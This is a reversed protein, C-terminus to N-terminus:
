SLQEFPNTEGRGSPREANGEPLQFRTLLESLQDAIRNLHAAAELTKASGSTTADAAKAVSSIRGSINNTGDTVALLSSGVTATTMSQQGVASAITTTADRVADILGSIENIALVAGETDAQIAEVKSRIEDTAGSTQSALEKVENAVVAFGKGAAGVRAAEITANLALLNTQEAISTIVDVVDGIGAASADLEVMREKTAHTVDVAQDALAAAGATSTSIEQVSLSMQDMAESVQNSSDAIEEAAAAVETAQGAAENAVGSMDRSVTDLNSASSSLDNVSDDVQALTGGISELATNLAVAMHGVEDESTAEFRVALDGDSVRQLVRVNRRLPGSLGRAMLFGLGIIMAGAVLAIFSLSRRLADAPAAAEASSQRVLVGWGYGAFGLAGDTVAFGNIQEVGRRQHEEVTYGSDGPQGTAGVAAALGIEVLNLADIAAPDADDIITGDARIVQTEITTLGQSAFAARRQAMVDGVVRDFSAENHWVAVLRGRQDIIPATFPLTLLREGYLQETYPSYHADTYYTGGDPTEGSAVVQFWEEDGVQEGILGSSDIPQGAGDVGNASMIRGDLGVILMLDYIGYNVTLFDTLRQREPVSGWAMPNAAFAQVDGYREFLNRDIIDGDTVAADELLHGAAGQLQDASAQFSYWSIVMAPVLGLLLFGAVLKINLSLNAVPQRMSRNM